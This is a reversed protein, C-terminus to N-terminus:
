PIIGSVVIRADYVPHIPGGMAGVGGGPNFPLPNSNFGGAAIPNVLNVWSNNRLTTFMPPVLTLDVTTSQDFTPLETPNSVGVSYDNSGVLGTITPLHFGDWKLASTTDCLVGKVANDKGWLAADDTFFPHNQLTGYTYLTAGYGTTPLPGFGINTPQAKFVSVLGCYSYSESIILAPGGYCMHDNDILVGAAFEHNICHPRGIDGGFPPGQPGIDFTAGGLIFDFGGHFCVGRLAASNVLFTYTDNFIGYPQIRCGHFQYTVGGGGSGQMDFVGPTEARFEINTWSVGVYQFSQSNGSTGVDWNGKMTALVFSEVVYTDGAQPLVPTVGPLPAPNPISWDSTVAVGGGLIEAIYAIAGARPGSDIRLRMYLEGPLIGPDTIEYPQNLARNKPTIAAITGARQVTPAAEYLFVVDPGLTLNLGIPDSSPLDSLLIVRVPHVPLFGFLVEIPPM